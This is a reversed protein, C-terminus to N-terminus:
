IGCKRWDFCYQWDSSEKAIEAKVADCEMRHMSVTCMFSGWVLCLLLM